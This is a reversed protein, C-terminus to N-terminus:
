ASAVVRLGVRARRKKPVRLIKVVRRLAERKLAAFSPRVANQLWEGVAYVTDACSTCLDAQGPEWSCPPFCAREETCGCVRCRTLLPTPM